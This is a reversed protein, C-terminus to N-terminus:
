RSGPRLIRRRDCWGPRDGCPRRFSFPPAEGSPLAAKFKDMEAQTGISVRVMTPWVPWTRGIFVKEAALMAKVDHAYTGKQLPVRTVKVGIFKASGAGSEYGPDSMVLGKTPSTFALVSRHLPDSSGAYPAIFDPKVGELDPDRSEDHSSKGTEHSCGLDVASQVWRFETEGIDRDLKSIHHRQRTIRILGKIQRNLEEGM